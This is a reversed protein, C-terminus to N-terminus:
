YMNYDARFLQYGESELYSIIRDGIIKSYRKQLFEKFATRNLRASKIGIDDECM